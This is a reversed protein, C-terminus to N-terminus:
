SSREGEARQARRVPPRPSRRRASAAKHVGSAKPESRAGCRHPPAENNTPPAQEVEVIEWGGGAIALARARAAGESECSVAITRSRSGGSERVRVRYRPLEPAPPEAVGSTDRRARLGRAMGGAPESRPAGPAALRVPPFADAAPLLTALFEYYGDPASRIELGIGGFCVGRMSPPVMRNWVVRARIEGNGQGLDVRVEEGPRVGVNAQVFLGGRSVNLVIGSHRRGSVLLECPVRKRARPHIQIAGSGMAPRM